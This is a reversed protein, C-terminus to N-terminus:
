YWLKVIEACFLLNEVPCTKEGVPFVTKNPHHESLDHKLLPSFTQNLTYKLVANM